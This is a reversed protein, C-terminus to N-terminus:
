PTCYTKSLSYLLVTTQDWGEVATLHHRIDTEQGIFDSYTEDLVLWVGRERCIAQIAALTEGSYVAGTPNNPSILAVVRCGHKDIALAVADPDPAFGDEPQCTVFRPELGLMKVAAENNFFYPTTLLVRDGAGALAMLVAVFAQNCGATIQVNDATISTHLQESQYIAFAERLLTEGEIEGYKALSLDGALSAIDALLSSHPPYGPVAQSLDILPGCQNAYTDIWSLVTPIAPAALGDVAPNFTTRETTM